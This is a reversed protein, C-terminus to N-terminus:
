QSLTKLTKHCTHRPSRTKHQHNLALVRLRPHPPPPLPPQLGLTSCRSLMEFIFNIRARSTSRLAARATWRYLRTIHIHTHAPLLSPPPPKLTRCTRPLRKVATLIIVCSAYIRWSRRAVVIRLTTELLSAVRGEAGRTAQLFSYLTQAAAGPSLTLWPTLRFRRYDHLFRWTHTKMTILKILSSNRDVM